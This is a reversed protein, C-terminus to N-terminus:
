GLIKYIGDYDTDVMRVSNASEALLAVATLLAIHIRM